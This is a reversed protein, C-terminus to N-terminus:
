ACCCCCARCGCAGGEMPPLLPLPIGGDNGTGRYRGLPAPVSSSVAGLETLPPTATAAAVAVVALGLLPLLLLLLLATRLDPDNAM